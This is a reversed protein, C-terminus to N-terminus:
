LKGRVTRIKVGCHEAEIIHYGGLSDILDDAIVEHFSSKHRECASVIDEAFITNSSKITLKYEILESDNPCKSKFNYTYINM